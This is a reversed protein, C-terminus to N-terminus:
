ITSSGMGWDRGTGNKPDPGWGGVERDSLLRIRQLARECVLEFNKQLRSTTHVTTSKTLTYIYTNIYKYIYIYIYVCVYARICIYIYLIHLYIYIYIHIYIYICVCVYALIYIYVYMNISTYKNVYIYEYM